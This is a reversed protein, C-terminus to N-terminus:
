YIGQQDLRNQIQQLMQQNSGSQFLAQAMTNSMNQMQSCFYMMMADHVMKPMEAKIAEITQVVAAQVVADNNVVNEVESKAKDLMAQMIEKRFYNSTQTRDALMKDLKERDSYNAISDNRLDYWTGNHYRVKNYDNKGENWEAIISDIAAKRMLESNTNDLAKQLMQNAMQNKQEPTLTELLVKVEQDLQSGNVELTIQM